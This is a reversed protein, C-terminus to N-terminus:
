RYRYSTSVMGPMGQGCSYACIRLVRDVIGVRLEPVLVRHPVDELGAFHESGEGHELAARGGIAGGGGDHAALLEDLLVVELVLCAGGGPDM